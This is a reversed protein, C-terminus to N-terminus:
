IGEYVQVKQSLFIVVLVVVTVGLTLATAVDMAAVGTALEFGVMVMADALVAVCVTVLKETSLKPDFKYPM